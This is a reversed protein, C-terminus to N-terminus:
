AKTTNERRCVADGKQGSNHLQGEWRSLQAMKVHVLRGAAEPAVIRCSKQDVCSILPFSGRSTAVSGAQM